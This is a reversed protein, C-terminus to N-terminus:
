SKTRPRGEIRLFIGEIARALELARSRMEELRVVDETTFERDEPLKKLREAQDRMERSLTDDLELETTGM